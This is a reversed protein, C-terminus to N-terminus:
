ADPRLSTAWSTFCAQFLAPAIRNMVVRLWDAGPIGFHFESFTRLFDLHSEGWEAIAEYDDCDCITAAVVLLLVEPLPYRVKTAVRPDRVEAFPDLLSRRRSRAFGDEDVTGAALTADM